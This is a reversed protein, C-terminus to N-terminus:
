SSTRRSEPNASVRPYSLCNVIPSIGLDSHGRQSRLDLVLVVLSTGLTFCLLSDSSVYVHRPLCITISFFVLLSVVAAGVDVVGVLDDEGEEEAMKLLTPDKCLSSDTSGLCSYGTCHIGKEKDFAM